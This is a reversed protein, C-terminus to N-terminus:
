KTQCATDKVCLGKPINGNFYEWIFRSLRVTKKKGNKGVTRKPYGDQGINKNVEWCGRATVNWVIPSRGINLIGM